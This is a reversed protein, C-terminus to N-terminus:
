AAVGSCWIPLATGECGAGDRMVGDTVLAAVKRMRMRACLIDGFIGAETVGM